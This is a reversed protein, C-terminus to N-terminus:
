LIHSSFIPDPCSRPLYATKFHYNLFVKNALFTLFYEFTTTSFYCTTFLLFLPHFLSLLIVLTSKKRSTKLFLITRKGAFVRSQRQCKKDTTASPSQRIRGGYPIHLFDFTTELKQKFFFWEKELFTFFFNVSSTNSDEKM